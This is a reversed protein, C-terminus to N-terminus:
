PVDAEEWAIEILPDLNLLTGVIEGWPTDEKSALRLKYTVIRDERDEHYDIFNIKVGPFQGLVEKIRPLPRQECCCKVTLITHEIRTVEPIFFRINFLIPLSIATALLAQVILGAGIALGITTVLWLGAATTLGRVTSKGKIIAGAGLFGMGAVAYSAIRGPDARVISHDTFLNFLWPLDISLEMLLCGAICVLTYTRLGATQGQIEREYGFITGIAAALLLKISFILFATWFDGSFTLVPLGSRPPLGKFLQAPISANAM